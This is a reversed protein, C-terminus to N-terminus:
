TTEEKFSTSVHDYIFCGRWAHGCCPQGRLREEQSLTDLYHQCTLTLRCDVPYDSTKTARKLHLMVQIASGTTGGIPGHKRIASYCDRRAAFGISWGFSSIQEKSLPFLRALSDARAWLGVNHSSLHYRSGIASALGKGTGRGFTQGYGAQWRGLLECCTRRFEAVYAWSRFLRNARGDCNGLTEGSAMTVARRWWNDMPRFRLRGSMGTTRLPGM